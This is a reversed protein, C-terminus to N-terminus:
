LLVELVKEATITQHNKLYVTIGLKRSLAVLDHKIHAPSWLFYALFMERNQVNM